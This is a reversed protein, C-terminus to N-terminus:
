RASVTLTESQAPEFFGLTPLPYDETRICEALHKRDAESLRAGAVQEPTYEAQMLFRYLRPPLLRDLAHLDLYLAVAPHDKVCPYERLDGFDRFGLMRRYFKAHRPHVAVVLEDYGNWLAHVTMLRCLHIFVDFGGGGRAPDAALCSVEAMRTGRDRREGIEAPYISEMPLGLSDDGVLSMTFVPDADKQAALFVTTSDLLHYPTVRVGHPNPEILGARRYAQYVLGLASVREGLTRAIRYDLQM